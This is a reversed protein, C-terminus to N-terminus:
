SDSDVIDFRQQEHDIVKKGIEKELFDLKARLKNIKSTLEKEQIYMKRRLQCESLKAQRLFNYRQEVYSERNSTLDSELEESKVKLANVERAHERVIKASEYKFIYKLNDLREEYEAIRKKANHAVIASLSVIIAAIFIVTEMSMM